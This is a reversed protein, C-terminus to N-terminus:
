WGLTRLRDALTATFQHAPRVYLHEYDRFDADPMSRSLDFVPVGVKTAAKTVIAKWSDFDAAGRPHLAIFGTPVPMLVIAVETGEQLLVHLTHVYAAIEATGTQFHLLQHDRVDIRHQARLRKLGAASLKPYGLTWVARDGLPVPKVHVAATGQAAHELVLPSRLADRHNSLQLNAMLRDADAYFGRQTARAKDYSDITKNDRGSNFDISSMGWVVRKPHIRPDVEELLWREVVPSQSGPLAVNHAWHVDPLLKEFDNAAVDRRVMSTGVFTLDSRVHNRHLIDLDHVVTQANASFYDVPQPLRSSFGRVGMEAGVVIALFGAIWAIVPRRFRRERRPPLSALERDFEDSKTAV